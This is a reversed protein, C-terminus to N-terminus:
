YFIAISKIGNENKKVDLYTIGGIVKLGNAMNLDLNLNLGKSVLFGDLNKYIIKDAVDYNPIIKNSFYTYFASADIGLFGNTLIVKRNFNLNANWSQEPKLNESIIVERAGTMAAHEESFVNVIRFGKGINLRLINLKDNWKLAFRPTIIPGHTKNYDFRIGEM